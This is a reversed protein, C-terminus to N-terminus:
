EFKTEKEENKGIFEIFNRGYSTIIYSDQKSVKKMKRLAQKANNEKNKSVAQLYDIIFDINEDQKIDNRSELLGLRILKLRIMEYQSYDIQYDQIIKNYSDEQESMINPAHLKLVRIDLMNVQSLTDYFGLLVDEQPNEIKISNVCGNALLKIKADQNNEISYDFYMDLLKKIQPLLNDQYDKIIEQIEDQRRQLEKIALDYRKEQQRQKYAIMINGVGPIITGAVGEVFISSVTDLTTPLAPAIYDDLIKRTDM